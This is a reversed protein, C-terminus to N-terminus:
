RNRNIKRSMKARKAKARAKKQRKNLVTRPEPKMVRKRSYSGSQAGGQTAMAGLLLYPMLSSRMSRM